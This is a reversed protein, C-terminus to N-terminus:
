SPVNHGHLSPTSSISSSRGDFGSAFSPRGDVVKVQLGGHFLVRSSIVIEKTTSYGCLFDLPSSIAEDRYAGSYKLNPASAV